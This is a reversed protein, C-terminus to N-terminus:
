SSPQLMLLNVTHATDVPEGCCDCKGPQIFSSIDLNKLNSLDVGEMNSDSNNLKMDEDDDDIDEEDEVEEEVARTRFEEM